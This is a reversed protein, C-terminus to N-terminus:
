SHDTAVLSGGAWGAAGEVGTAVFSLVGGIVEDETTSEAAVAVGFEICCLRM